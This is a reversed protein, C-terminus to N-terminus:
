SDSTNIRALRQMEGPQSIGAEFVAIQHDQSMQWVSLPVGVQSNFSKPSRVVNYFHSLFHWLWDKIITKGNSGTIGIVPIDFRSRHHAALTQLAQLTDNILIYNGQPRDDPLYSVVFNRVGKDAMERLFHHGDRRGQLAFFMSKESPVIRRSDYLLFDVHSDCRGECQGGTIIAIDSLTYKM